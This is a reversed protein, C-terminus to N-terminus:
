DRVARKREEEDKHAQIPDVTQVQRIAYKGPPLETPRHEEHVVIEKEAKEPVLLFKEMALQFLVSHMGTLAHRHGTLEGEMVEQSKDGHIQQAESPIEEIREFIVDGQQFHM